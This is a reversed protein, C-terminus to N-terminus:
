EDGSEDNKGKTILKVLMRECTLLTNYKEEIEVLQKSTNNLIDQLMYQNIAVSIQERRAESIDAVGGFMEYCYRPISLYSRKHHLKNEEDTWRHPIDGQLPGVQGHVSLYDYHYIEEWYTVDSECYIACMDKVTFHANGRHKYYTYKIEWKSCRRRTRSIKELKSNHYAAMIIKIDPDQHIENIIDVIVKIINEDIIGEKNKNSKLTKVKLMKKM